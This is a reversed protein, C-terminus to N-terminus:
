KVVIIQRTQSYTLLHFQGPMQSSMLGKTRVLQEKTSKTTDNHLTIFRAVTKCWCVSTRKM